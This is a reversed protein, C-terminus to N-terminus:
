TMGPNESTGASVAAVHAAGPGHCGECSIGPIFHGPDFRNNAISATPHCGFCSPAEDAPIESGLANELSDASGKPHDPSIDFGLSHFFSIRAEYFNGKHQFLFSQGRSGSGFTWLIPASFSEGNGAVTFIVAKNEPTIQYEFPGLKYTTKKTLSETDTAAMSTHAMAHQKQGAALSSHCGTCVEPEVYDSRAADGKRPWWGPKALHEETSLQDAITEPIQASASSLVLLVCFLVARSM